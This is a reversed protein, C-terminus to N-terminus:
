KWKLGFWVRADGGKGDFMWDMHKKGEEIGLKKIMLGVSTESMERHRNENSWAIFRRYFESKTIYGNLDHKSCAQNIFKELFNSKSEYREMRDEVSGENTFGRNKLLEQLIKSCKVALCNYEEEPIDTLVDKAETFRNPFDIIFWRRYFGITKDTTAPLNNTAIIIKAYNYGEFPDKGKYEFGIMDQGTLKKIISTQSIENFNTEGMMCVLKKHLRTVEFRSNMLTDLETATINKEGIFKKLLRLFCSKGNMGVGIFCFLRHIPYDPLCSYALIEYLTRIRDKGVWEEFIKDMVPTEPTKDKHFEYPLPNTAFYEPTSEFEKGSSIDIFKGKFQIWTPEIPKPIKKRGEQKLSNLIETRKSPTIIDMGTAAEVMNLIDVEDTIEWCRSEKNWLWWLKNKDYFLPQLNEFSEAQGKSGFVKAAKFFTEYKFDTRLKDIKPKISLNLSDFDIQNGEFFEMPIERTNSYKWHPAFLVPFVKNSSAFNEDIEADEPCIWELFRKIEKDKIPRTFEIWLYDSSGNHSSRIFGWKNDILKQRVKEVNAKIKEKDKTKKDELKDDFEIVTRNPLRAIMNINTEFKQNHYHKKETAWKMKHNGDQAISYIFEEYQSLWHRHKDVISALVECERYKEFAVV